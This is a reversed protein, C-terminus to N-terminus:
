ATRKYVLKYTLPHKLHSSTISVEMTLKKGDASLCYTNVRQGDKSQFTQVLKGNEWRTSVKLKEGDERTWIVPIDNPSTKIPARQDITISVEKQNYSIIIRQYPPLNTKKLRPRAFPREFRSMEKVAAEIAENITSSAAPDDLTYTGQLTPTQGSAAGHALLLSSCLLAIYRMVTNLRM